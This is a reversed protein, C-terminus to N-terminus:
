SALAAVEALTIDSLRAVVRDAATLRDQPYSTAVALTRNGATQAAEIGAPSDEIVVVHQPRLTRNHKESLKRLTQLYGEPDPKGAAVMEASVILDFCDLVGITKAALKIEDLLAGSCVALPLKAAAASRILDVAGPLPQITGAFISQVIRTKAATLEAIKKESIRRGNDAAVAAFCDHDDFGLYKGYYDRTSLDIGVDRLVRRFAELHVPESDVVVGDFDFILADM